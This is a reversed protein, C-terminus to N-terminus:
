IWGCVVRGLFVTVLITVAAWLFVIFVERGAIAAVVALLPDFHFFAEVNGIYDEGTFHTGFLLCLFLAFFFVQAGARVLQLRRYKKSREKKL